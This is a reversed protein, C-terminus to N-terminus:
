EVEENEQRQFTQKLQRSHVLSGALLKGKLDANLDLGGVDRLLDLDAGGGGEPDVSRRRRKLDSGGDERSRKEEKKEEEQPVINEKLDRGGKQKPMLHLEARDKKTDIVQQLQDLQEKQKLIRKEKEAREMIEKDIKEREQKLSEDELIGKEQRADIVQQLQDLREKHELLSKEKEAREVVEKDMKKQERKLREEELREKELQEKQQRVRELEQERALEERREREKREKEVRAQVEKEIREKDLKEKEIREKEAELQALKQRLIEEKEALANPNIKPPEPEQQHLPVGQADVEASKAEGHRAQNKLELKKKLGEAGGDEVSELANHPLGAAVHAEKAASDEPVAVDAAVHVPEGQPKQLQDPAVAAVKSKVAGEIGELQRQVANEVEGAGEGVFSMIHKM